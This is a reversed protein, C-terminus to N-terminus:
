KLDTDKAKNILHAIRKDVLESYATNWELLDGKGKRIEVLCLRTSLEFIQISMGVMGKASLMTSKIVGSAVMAEKSSPFDFGMAELADIVAKSLDHVSIASATFHYQKAKMTGGFLLNGTFSAKKSDPTVAAATKDAGEPVVYFIEPSFMKDLMFGGCHSVLDFANLSVPSTSPVVDDFTESEDHASDDATQVAAEVEEATPMNPSSGDMDAGGGVNYWPEAKIQALSLRVAPDAVLMKDLLARVEPTFWSPYTFDANQIKAFLAVITSEDFPLFGALLVYLIVGISWVDAKKGDYGKDSLVEPAVYNPTGCTTHLLETRSTGDSGDADGIYLSSLGFDSIKLNGHEDLLLNEPKLDRHCIGLKHCYEVGEVLQRFYFRAQEENLKGVQVIKDFLEGGTVLELVIFIKTKSALVEIMGVISKHKVMKMISIEKKIQNGMNQKQIKEKDLIKIAVAENTETDLAYKVKGFTGEGLGRGLEYKGVKKVM